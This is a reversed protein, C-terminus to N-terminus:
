ETLKRGCLPCFKIPLKYWEGSDCAHDYWTAIAPAGSWILKTAVSRGYAIVYSMITIGTYKQSQCECLEGADIRHQLEHANAKELSETKYACKECSYLTGEKM